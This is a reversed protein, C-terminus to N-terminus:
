FVLVRKVMRKMVLAARYAYRAFIWRDIIIAIYVRPTRRLFEVSSPSLRRGLDFFEQFIDEGSKANKKSEGIRRYLMEELMIELYNASYRLIVNALNHNSFSLTKLFLLYEFLGLQYNTTITGGSASSHERYYFCEDVDIALYGLAILKVWIEYDGFILNERHLFNQYGGIADYDTSRMVYGTGTSDLTRAFQLAVFEHTQLIECMPLCHRILKGSDDVYGFHTQYLSAYPHKNILGVITKLFNPALFDDHGIITMYQNRVLGSIRLWNEGLTLPKDSPLLTVRSDDLGCLWEYTGDTSCNELILLDFNEYTQQLISAVCEKVFSGGNRVPLVISFKIM